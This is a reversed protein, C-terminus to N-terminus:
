FTFTRAFEWVKNRNKGQFLEYQVVLGHDKQAWAMLTIELLYKGTKPDGASIKPNAKLLYTRALPNAPVYNIQWIEKATPLTNKKQLLVLDKEWMTAFRESPTRPVDIITQPRSILLIGLVFIMLLFIKHM